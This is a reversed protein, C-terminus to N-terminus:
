YESVAMVRPGGTKLAKDVWESDYKVNSGGAGSTVFTPPLFDGTSAFRAVVVSGLSTDSGGGDRYLVGGGLVLVLGKFDASGRMDLTGTVVLIGKGGQPPLACDGDVFTLLGDQTSAGFDSPSSTFYRNLAPNSNYADAKLSTLLDRCGQATQLFTPLDSIAVPSVPPNSGTVQTQTGSPVLGNIYALDAAGTVAFAPLAAGGSYDNGTYGYKASDGIGYTGLSNDDASRITIAANPKFDFAYRNVMMQMQKNAGRPGYGVVKVIVRNPEPAKITVALPTTDNTNLSSSARKYEVGGLYSINSPATDATFTVSLLSSTTTITGTLTCNLVKTVAVPATQTITLQFQVPSTTPITYGSSGISSLQIKGLDSSATGNVTTASKPVYTLTVRSNGNGLDISTKPNNTSTPFIGSTSFVATSMGDPDTVSDVKYAMGSYASYNASDTIVVRSGAFTNTYTLWRSLTPESVAQTFTIRNAAATSSSNDYLTSPLVHGRLVNLSAQMGAEAAYYAQAEATSDIANTASLATTMILAGGAALLLMSILLTTLLAAGRESSRDRAGSQAKISATAITSM